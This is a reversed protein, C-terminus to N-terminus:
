ISRFNEQGLAIQIILLLMEIQIVMKSQTQFFLFSRYFNTVRFGDFDLILLIELIIFIEYYVWIFLHSILILVFLIWWSRWQLFDLYLLTNIFVISPKVGESFVTGRLLEFIM